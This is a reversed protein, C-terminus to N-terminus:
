HLLSSFTNIYLNCFLFIWINRTLCHHTFTSLGFTGLGTLFLFNNEEIYSTLQLRYSSDIRWKWFIANLMKFFIGLLIIKLIKQKEHLLDLDLKVDYDFRGITVNRDSM